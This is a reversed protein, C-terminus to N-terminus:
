KRGPSAHGSASDSLFVPFNPHKIKKRGFSLHSTPSGVAPGPKQVEERAVVPVKRPDVSFGVRPDSSHVPSSVTNMLDVPSSDPLTGLVSEWRPSSPRRTPAELGPDKAGEKGSTKKGLEEGGWGWRRM